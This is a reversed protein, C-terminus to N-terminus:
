LETIEQECIAVLEPLNIEQFLQQAQQYAQKAEPINKQKIQTRAIYFWAAGTSYLDQITIFLDLAQQYQALAPVLQEQHFYVHGVAQLTNAAGLRAGVEEYMKLAQSYKELAEDTQKKFQLVDGIEILTNAAGLRAGVEEYMKLAQSYKELAEDTQKKFQLVDGIAKLTNAAGLRDGVEEYMKLAQSYKELAEDRQDKFQLVDGIAKLTNAAGLRDGLRWYIEIASQYNNLAETNEYLRQQIDGIAQLTNAEGLSDVNKRYIKLAQNYLDQTTIYDHQLIHVAALDCYANALEISDGPELGAIGRRFYDKSLEINVLHDVTYNNIAQQYFAQGTRLYISYLLPSNSDESELSKILKLLEAVPIALASSDNKRNTLETSLATAQSNIPVRKFEFVDQRWSWFDPAQRMLNKVTYSNVWLIIPFRFERFAERTWQLYGFWKQLNSDQDDDFAASKFSSIKESGVVSVVTAGGVQLYEENDILNSILQRVNPTSPPIEVRYPRIQPLLEQEYRYIIELQLEPSDCIAFIIGMKGQLAEISVVLGDYANQNAPDLESLINTM